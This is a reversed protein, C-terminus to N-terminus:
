RGAFAGFRRPLDFIKLRFRDLMRDPLATLTTLLKADKGVPYRTKPKTELLARLIARAVVDPSSGQRARRMARDLFTKFMPGYRRSAEPSFDGLVKKGEASTKEVGATAISGPEILCVHIGWPHLELRLAESLTALASKCGCQVGAFPMTIRDGMSGLNVIRGTAIRILPLFAQTVAIQGFVNVEFQRRLDEMSVYELPAPDGFGANNVLGYLGAGGALTRISEAAVAIAQGDTIDLRIPHLRADERRLSAEDDTKRVAAFVNFGSAALRLATARGIGSSAGTVLVFKGSATNM